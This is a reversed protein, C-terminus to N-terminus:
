VKEQRIILESTVSPKKPHQNEKEKKKGGGGEKFTEDAFCELIRNTLYKLKYWCGMSGLLKLDKGLFM